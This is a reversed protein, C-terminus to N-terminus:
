PQPPLYTPRAPLCEPPGLVDRHPTPAGLCLENVAADSTPSSPVAAADNRFNPTIRHADDLHHRYRATVIGVSLRQVKYLFDVGGVPNPSPRTRLGDASVIAYKEVGM